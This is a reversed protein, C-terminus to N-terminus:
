PQYDNKTEEILQIIHQKIAPLEKIALMIRHHEIKHCEHALANRLAIMKKWPVTKFREKYEEPIARVAEGIIFLQYYMAEATRLEKMEPDQALFLEIHEIRELIHCFRTYVPKHPNM